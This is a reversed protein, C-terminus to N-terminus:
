NYPMIYIYIYILLYIPTTLKTYVRVSIYTYKISYLINSYNVLRKYSIKKRSNRSYLREMRIPYEMWGDM